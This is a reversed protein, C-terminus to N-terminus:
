LAAAFFAAVASIAIAFFAFKVPAVTSHAAGSSSPSSTASSASSTSSAGTSSGSPLTLVITSTTTSSATSATSPASTATTASSAADVSLQSYIAPTFTGNMGTMTFKSSFAEYPQNTTPDLAAVSTFRIFYYQGDPGVEPYLIPDITTTTAPNFVGLVQLSEQVLEGGTYLAITTQGFLTASPADATDQWIISCTQGGVCVTTATPSTTFISASASAVLAGVSAAFFAKGVM